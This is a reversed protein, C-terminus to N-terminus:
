ASGPAGPSRPASCAKLMSRDRQAPASVQESFIEECGAAQLDRIQADLGAQQDCTSVRAYGVLIGPM